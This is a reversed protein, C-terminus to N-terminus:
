QTFRGEVLDFTDYLFVAVRLKTYKNYYARLTKGSCVAVFVVKGSLIDLKHVLNHEKETKECAICTRGDSTQVGFFMAYSLHDKHYDWSFVYKYEEWINMWRNENLIFYSEGNPGASQAAYRVVKQPPDNDCIFDPM